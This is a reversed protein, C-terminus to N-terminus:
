RKIDSDSRAAETEGPDHDTLPADEDHKYYVETRRIMGHYDEFGDEDDLASGSRRTATGGLVRQGRIDTLGISSSDGGGGGALPRETRPRIYSSPRHRPLWLIRGRLVPRAHAPAPGRVGEGQRNPHPQHSVYGVEIDPYLYPRNLGMSEFMAPFWLRALPWLTPITATVIALNVEITNLTYGLSYHTDEPKIYWVRIIFYLRLM